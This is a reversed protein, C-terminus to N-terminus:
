RPHQRLPLERIFLSALLAVGVFPVGVVFVPHLADAMGARIGLLLVPPLHAFTAPDLASGASLVASGGSRRFAAVASPPLHRPIDTALGSTLLSGMVAVGIASGISRFLQTASTAVGMDSPDVANQVALTFTQMAAGLGLGILIMNRVIEANSTRMDMQALLLYGIAMAVLGTLIAVKYRGTRSIVQGNVISTVVMALLMPLLVSGSGAANSGIVGQVFVPIFYIAGFMAMAVGTTAICSFTFISNRWLRLPLVPETARLEILVFLMVAVAAISYLGVIQLSLWAYQQGGWVTATLGSVLGVTLTVIGWVDIAHKRQQTPVHMFLLIVILAVVGVPLNVFFLWRWSLHDTIFGGLPPGLLSSLGFTAGIVGQYKGRERPSIIDGIIAQSLPQMTGIGLGQVARAAILFWFSPALGSLVSGAMFVLIGGMYFPKRGFLDSLKGAIPVAVASAVISSIAIWSYHEIGGLQAVIVPMAPAILTLNLTSVFMGLLLGAFVAMVSRRNQSPMPEPGHHSDARVAPAASMESRAGAGAM